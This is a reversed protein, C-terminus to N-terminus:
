ILMSYLKQVIINVNPMFVLTKQICKIGIHVNYRCIIESLEKPSNWLYVNHTSHLYPLLQAIHRRSWIALINSSLTTGRKAILRFSRRFNIKFLRSFRQARVSITGDCGLGNQILEKTLSLVCWFHEEVYYRTIHMYIYMWASTSLM